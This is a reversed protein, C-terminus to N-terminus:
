APLGGGFFQRFVSPEHLERAQLGHLPEDFPVETAFPDIGARLDDVLRQWAAGVVDPVRSPRDRRNANM